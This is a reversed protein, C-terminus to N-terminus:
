ANRTPVTSCPQGRQDLNCLLKEGQLPGPGQTFQTPEANCWIRAQRRQGGGFGSVRRLKSHQEVVCSTTAQQLSQCSSVSSQLSDAFSHCRSHSRCAATCIHKCQASTQRYHSTQATSHQNRGSSHHKQRASARSQVMPWSTQKTHLPLHTHCQGASM